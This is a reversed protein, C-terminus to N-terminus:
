DAGLERELLKKAPVTVFVRSIYINVYM